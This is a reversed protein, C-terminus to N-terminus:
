ACAGALVVDDPRSSFSNFSTPRRATFTTKEPPHRERKRLQLFRGFSTSTSTESRM